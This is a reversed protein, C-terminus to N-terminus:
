EVFEGKAILRYYKVWRDVELKTFVLGASQLMTEIQRNHSDNRIGKLIIKKRVPRQVRVMRERISQRTAHGKSIVDTM